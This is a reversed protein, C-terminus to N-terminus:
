PRFTGMEYAWDPEYGVLHLLHNALEFPLHLLRQLLTEADESDAMARLSFWLELFPGLLAMLAFNVKMRTSRPLDTTMAMGSVIFGQVTWFRVRDMPLRLLRALCLHAEEHRIVTWEEVTRLDDLLFPFQVPLDFWDM